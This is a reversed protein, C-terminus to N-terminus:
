YPVASCARLVGAAGEDFKIFSGGGEGELFDALQLRCALWAPRFWFGRQGHPCGGLRLDSHLLQRPCQEFDGGAWRRMAVLPESLASDVSDDGAV